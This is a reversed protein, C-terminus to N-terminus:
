DKLVNKSNIKIFEEVKQYVYNPSISSNKGLLLSYCTYNFPVTRFCLKLHGEM